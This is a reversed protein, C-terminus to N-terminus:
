PPSTLDSLSVVGRRVAENALRVRRRETQDGQIDFKEYLKGLHQKVAAETVYLTRAIERITAPETFVEGSLAPRCLELLVERERRTLEPPYPGTVTAGEDAGSPTRRFTLRVAGIQIEDGSHLPCEGWIRRGNVLTGNRSGLDRIAWGGSLRELLAHVRSVSSDAAFAIGNDDSRGMTIVDGELVVRESGGRWKVDLYDVTRDTVTRAPARPM